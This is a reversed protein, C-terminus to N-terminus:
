SRVESLAGRFSCGLGESVKLWAGFLMSIRAQTESSSEPYGSTRRKPRNLVRLHEFALLLMESGPPRQILAVPWMQFGFIEFAPRLGFLAGEISSVPHAEPSFRRRLAVRSGLLRWWSAFTEEVFFTRSSGGFLVAKEDKEFVGAQSFDAQYV